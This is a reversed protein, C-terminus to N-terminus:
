PLREPNICIVTADDKKWQKTNSVTDRYFDDANKYLFFDSLRRNRENKLRIVTDPFMDKIQAGSPSNIIEYYRILYNNAEELLREQSSDWRTIWESYKQKEESSLQNYYKVGGKKTRIFGEGQKKKELDFICEKIQMEETVLGDSVYDSGMIIKQGPQLYIKKILPDGKTGFTQQDEFGIFGNVTLDGATETGYSDVINENQDVIYVPSDGLLYLNFEYTSVRQIVSLTTSGKDYHAHPKEYKKMFNVDMFYKKLTDKVWISNIDAIDNIETAVMKSLYRSISGGHRTSGLGDCIVFIGKTPNIAAADQNSSSNSNLLTYGPGEVFVGFDGFEPQIVGTIMEENANKTPLSNTESDKFVSIRYESNLTEIIIDDGIQKASIVLTIHGGNVFKLENDVRLPSELTVIHTQGQEPHTKQISVRTNAGLVEEGRNFYKESFNHARQDM